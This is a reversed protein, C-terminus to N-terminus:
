REHIESRSLPKKGGLRYGAKLREIASASEATTDTGKTLVSELGEIVLRKFSTQRKAALIKSKELLEPPLDITTKM